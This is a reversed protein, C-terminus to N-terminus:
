LTRWVTYKSRAGYVDINNGGKLKAIVAKAGGGKVFKQIFGQMQYLAHLYMYEVRRHCCLYKETCTCAPICMGHESQNNSCELLGFPWTSLQIEKRIRRVHQIKFESVCEIRGFPWAVCCGFSCTAHMASARTCADESDLRTDVERSSTKM